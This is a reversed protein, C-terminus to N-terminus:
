VKSKFFFFNKLGGNRCEGGSMEVWFLTSHGGGRDLPQQKIWPLTPSEHQPDHFEWTLKTNEFISTFLWTFTICIDINVKGVPFIHNIIVRQQLLQTHPSHQKGMASCLIPCMKSTAHKPKSYMKICPYKQKKPNNTNDESTLFILPQFNEGWIAHVCHVHLTSFNVVVVVGQLNQHFFNFLSSLYHDKTPRAM